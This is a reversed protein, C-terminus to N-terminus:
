VSLSGFKVLLVSIIAGVTNIASFVVCIKNESWGSKEFHHHIPAMKFVHKQGHTAKLVSLQIIDSAFEMVYVFGAILVLWPMDLAYCVAATLGGIFLSGCDGMFVKAPHRNWVLFGCAAGLLVSPLIAIGFVGKIVAIAICGAAFPITVSSLLGDEGDTFNVANITCYLMIFGLPWFFLGINVNGVFPVFVYTAGVSNLSALYGAMVLLEAASKQMISLGANNHKVVKLYDDAFGIVAFGLAMVLGAWFKVKLAGPVMSGEGIIDGGMLKDTILVVAISVISAAIFMLGGMTPTGQKLKHAEPAFESVAQGFKLKRLWPVVAFGLVATLVATMIAAVCIVAINNM